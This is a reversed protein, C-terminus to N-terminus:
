VGIAVRRIGTFLLGQLQLAPEHRQAPLRAAASGVWGARPYPGGVLRYPKVPPFVGSSRVRSTAAPRFLGALGTASCVTSPTRFASPPVYRPTPHGACRTSAMLEHRSSPSSGWPLRKEIRDGFPTRSPLCTAPRLVRFSAVLELSSSVAQERQRHVASPSIGRPGDSVYSAEKQPLPSGSRGRLGDAYLVGPLM